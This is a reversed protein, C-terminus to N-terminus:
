IYSGEEIAKLFEIINSGKIHYRKRREDGEIIAKLKNKTLRDKHVWNRVMKVDKCWPFLKLDVIEILGYFKEPDIKQKTKTAM